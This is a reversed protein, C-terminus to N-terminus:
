PTRMKEQQMRLITNQKISEYIANGMKEYGKSNPHFYDEEYILNEKQGSFIPSIEVFYIGKEKSAIAKTRQNWEVMIDNFEDISDLWKTFPNYLGVLYIDGNPNMKRIHSIIEKINKEYTVMGKEFQPLQLHRYNRKVINMVDNGGITVIVVDAQSIMKEISDKELQKILGDSTLGRKGYHAMSIDKVRQENELQTALVAQYGGKNTDDGVGQTLSDGVSAIAIDAPPLAQFAVEKQEGTQKEIPQSTKESRLNSISCASLLICTLSLLFIKKVM